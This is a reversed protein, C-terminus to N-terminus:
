TCISTRAEESIRCCECGARKYTADSVRSNQYHRSPPVNRVGQLDDKRWRSTSSISEISFWCAPYLRESFPLAFDHWECSPSLESSSQMSETWSWRLLTGWCDSSLMSRYIQKSETLVKGASQSPTFLGPGDKTTNMIRTCTCRSTRYM